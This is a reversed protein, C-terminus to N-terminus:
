AMTMAWPAPLVEKLWCSLRGNLTTPISAGVPVGISRVMCTGSAPISAIWRPQSVPRWLLFTVGSCASASSRVGFVMVAKITPKLLRINANWNCRLM